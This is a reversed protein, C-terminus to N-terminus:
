VKCLNNNVKRIWEIFDKYSMAGKKLNCLRCCSVVNDIEYGRSNDKRDIGNYTFSGPRDKVTRMSSPVDGCYHCNGAFLSEMQEKSLQFNIGSSKANAKYQRIVMNKMAEGSPLKRWKNLCGCSRIRGCNLHNTCAFREKGCSCKCRWLSGKKRVGMSEIVTLSGFVRGLLDHRIVEDRLCGCSRTNQSNLRGTSVITQNGCDCKCIWARMNNIRQSKDEGSIVLKGFRDGVNIQRWKGSSM